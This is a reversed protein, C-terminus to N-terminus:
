QHLEESFMVPKDKLSFIPASVSPPATCGTTTNFNGSPNCEHFNSADLTAPFNSSGDLKVAWITNGTITKFIHWTNAGSNCLASSGMKIFILSSIPTSTMTSDIDVFRGGNAGKVPTYCTGAAERQFVGHNDNDLAGDSSMLICQNTTCNIDGDAPNKTTNRVAHSTGAANSVAHVQPILAFTTMIGIALASSLRAFTRVSNQISKFTQM